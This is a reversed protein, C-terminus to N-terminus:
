VGRREGSAAVPSPLMDVMAEQADRMQQSKRGSGSWYEDDIHFACAPCLLRSGEGCSMTTTRGGGDWHPMEM